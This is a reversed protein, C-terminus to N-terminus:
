ARRRAPPPPLEHDTGWSRLWAAMDQHSVWEADPREAYALGERIATRQWEESAPDRERALAEATEDQKQLEELLQRADALDEEPLQAVLRYLDERISM